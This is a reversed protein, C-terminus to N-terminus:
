AVFKDLFEALDDYSQEGMLRGKEVGKDYVILTPISNVELTRAFGRNEDTNTYRFQLRGKFEGEAAEVLVPHLNKCNICWEAGIYVVVPLDAKQLQPYYEERNLPILVEKNVKFLTSRDM